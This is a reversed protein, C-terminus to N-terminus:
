LDTEALLQLMSFAQEYVDLTLAQLSSETIRGTPLSEIQSLADHVGGRIFDHLQEQINDVAEVSQPAMVMKTGVDNVIRTEISSAVFLEFATLLQDNSLDNFSEVGLEAMEVVTELYASRAIGEDITGGDACLFDTLLSFVEQVSRGSLDPIGLTRLTEQRRTPDFFFGYLRAATQRSTGMRRAAQKSGGAATKVYSSVSRRLNRSNSNNTRAFASFSRRSAQFRNSAINGNLDPTESDSESEPSTDEPSDIWDPVLPTKSIPGLSSNSTGM